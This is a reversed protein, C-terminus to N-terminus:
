YWRMLDEIEAASLGQKGLRKRMTEKDKANMKDLSTENRAGFEPAISGAKKREYEHTGYLGGSDVDHFSADGGEFAMRGDKAKRAEYSM